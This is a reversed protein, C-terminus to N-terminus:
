NWGSFAHAMVVHTGTLTILVATLALHVFLWLKLKGQHAHHYDLDDRQDILRRLEPEAEREATSLFRQLSALDAQLRNRTRSSPSLYYLTNRPFVFFRALQDVYLDVIARSEPDRALSVMLAHASLRVNRRLAPIREYIVQERLKSLRKPIMRTLYLGYIGSLCTGAFLAYLASEFVGNPAREGTHMLMLAIAIWGVYIHAQLWGTASGLPVFALRKRLHFAALFLVAALLLYGSLFAANQLRAQQHRILFHLAVM